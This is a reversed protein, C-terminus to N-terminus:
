SSHVSQLGSWPPLLLRCATIMAGAIGLVAGVIGGLLCFFANRLLESILSKGMDVLQDRFNHQDDQPM